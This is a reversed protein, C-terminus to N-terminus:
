SDALCLDFLPLPELIREDDDEVKSPFFKIVSQHM